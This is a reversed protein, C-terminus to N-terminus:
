GAIGGGYFRYCGDDQVVVWAYPSAGRDAVYSYIPRGGWWLASSLSGVRHARRWFSLPRCVSQRHYTNGNFSFSDPLVVPYPWALGIFYVCVLAYLVGVVVVGVVAGAIQRRGRGPPSRLIGFVHALRRPSATPRLTNPPTVRLRGEITRGPTRDAISAAAGKASERRRTGCQAMIARNRVGAATTKAAAPARATVAGLLQGSRSARTTRIAKPIASRTTPSRRPRCVASYGGRRM